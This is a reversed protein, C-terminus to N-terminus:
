RTALSAETLFAELVPSDDDFADAGFTEIHFRIASTVDSVAEDATDGQGVVVGRLGLPYAVFGDPHQEVVITVREM